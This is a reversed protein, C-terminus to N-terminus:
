CKKEMQNAKEEFQEMQEFRKQLAEELFQNENKM